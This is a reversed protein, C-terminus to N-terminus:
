HYWTRGIITLQIIITKTLMPFLPNGQSMKKYTYIIASILKM